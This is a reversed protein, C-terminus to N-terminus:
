PARRCLETRTWEVRPILVDNEGSRRLEIRGIKIIEDKILKIEESYFIYSIIKLRSFFLTGNM